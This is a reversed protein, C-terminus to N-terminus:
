VIDPFHKDTVRPIHDYIDFHKRFQYGIAFQLINIVSVISFFIKSRGVMVLSVGPIGDFCPTPSATAGM